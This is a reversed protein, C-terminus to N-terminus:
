RRAPLPESTGWKMVSVGRRQLEHLLANGGTLFVSVGFLRGDRFRIRAHNRQAPRIEIKEIDSWALDAEGNLWRFKAGTDSWEVSRNIMERAILWGFLLFGGLGIALIQWASSYGQVMNAVGGVVFIAFLGLPLAALIKIFLGYYARRIPKGDEMHRDASAAMLSTILSGVIGGVM